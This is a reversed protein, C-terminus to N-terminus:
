NLGNHLAESSLLYYVEDRVEPPSCFCVTSENIVWHYMGRLILSVGYCCDDLVMVCPIQPNGVAFVVGHAQHSAMAVLVQFEETHPSLLLWFETRIQPFVDRFWWLSALAGGVPAWWGPPALKFKAWVACIKAGIRREGEANAWLGFGFGFNKCKM